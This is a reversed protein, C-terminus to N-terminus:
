AVDQKSDLTVCVAHEVMGAHFVYVLGTIASNVKLWRLALRGFGRLFLDRTPGAPFLMLLCPIDFNQVASRGVSRPTLEVDRHIQKAAQSTTATGHCDEECHM